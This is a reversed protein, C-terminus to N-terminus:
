DESDSSYRVLISLKMVYLLAAITIGISLTPILLKYLESIANTQLLVRDGWRAVQTIALLGYSSLIFLSVSGLRLGHSRCLWLMLLVFVLDTMAYTLYWAHHILPLIHENQWLIVMSRHMWQHLIDMLCVGFLIWQFASRTRVMVVYVFIALVNFGLSIENM